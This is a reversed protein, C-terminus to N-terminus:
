KREENYQRNRSQNITRLYPLLGASNVTQISLGPRANLEMILPGRNRDIVIDVGVYGLNVVDCAKVAILMIEDWFPIHIGTLSHGTDPHTTVLRHRYVGSLTRGTTLNIGVGVAGSSLTARAKSITTPIRLMAMAPVDKYVIIRIDALGFPAISRLIEPSEIKEEILAVDPQAALSFIGSIILSIHQRLETLRWLNRDPDCWLNEEKKQLILIGHGCAGKAPKVVFSTLSTLREELHKLESHFNFVTYLEPVPLNNSILLKKTLLKNDVLPYRKRENVMFLYELNRRNIGLIESQCLQAFYHFM